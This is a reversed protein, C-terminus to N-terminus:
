PPNKNISTRHSNTSNSAMWRALTLLLLLMSIWQSTSFGLWIGRSSDGRYFELVFRILAYSMLYVRLLTTSSNLGESLRFLIVSLSLLFVAEVLQLPFYSQTLGGLTIPIALFGQYPLGHCCGAFFCGIRGVAHALPICPVLAYIFPAPDEKLLRIALIGGFIGGILGGYFIQGASFLYLWKGDRIIVSIQSTSYTIFTYFTRSGIVAPLASSALVILLDYIGIGVRKARSYGIVASLLIGLALCLGYVPIHLGFVSLIPYM